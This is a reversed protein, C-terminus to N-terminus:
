GQRCLMAMPRSAYRIFILKRNCPIAIATCINLEAVDRKRPSIIASSQLLRVHAWNIDTERRM